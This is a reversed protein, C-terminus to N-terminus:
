HATLHLVLLGTGLALGISILTGIVLYETKQEPRDKENFRLLAKAAVLLGMGEYQENLVMVLIIMREIIGIWKGAQSLAEPNELKERWKMTLQGILIGAPWALFIFATVRIWGDRDAKMKDIYEMLDNWNYFAVYWCALIVLLHMLQDALFYVAKLPQYSKWTDILTHSIFVTLAVPWYAPGLLLLAMGGAVLTHYYLEPARFHKARRKTVWSDPQLVFDALLHSLLLKTLWTIEMHRM